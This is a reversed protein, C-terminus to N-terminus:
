IFLSSASENTHISNIAKAFMPAVDVVTVYKRFDRVENLTPDNM